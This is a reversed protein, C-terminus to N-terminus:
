GDNVGSQRAIRLNSDISVVGASPQCKHSAYGVLAISWAPAGDAGVAPEQVDGIRRAIGDANVRQGIRELRHLDLLKSKATRCDTRAAGDLGGDELQRKIWRAVREIDDSLVGARGSREWLAILKMRQRYGIVANQAFCDSRENEVRCVHWAVGVRLSDRNNGPMLSTVTM